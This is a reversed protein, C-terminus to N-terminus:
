PALYFLALRDGLADGANCKLVLSERFGVPELLLYRWALSGRRGSLARSFDRAEGPRGWFADLDAMSWGECEKGDVALSALGTPSNEPQEYVLGIWRGHGTQRVLNGPVSGAPQFIGRLRMRNKYDDRSKDTARDVSMSIAVKEIAKSGRNRAAVSLGSGYPMALLNAAGEKIATVLTDFDKGTGALAPFWFRAPAAIAPISEGDITVELWLDKNTLVARDAQLKVWNVIGTGELRALEVTTGPEITRADSNIREYVEAERLKGGTLGEHRYAIAALVGRPVGPRKISFSEVPVGAPFTVYELRYTAPLPDSAVIKLSKAYALCMLTPQEQHAAGPVNDFVHEAGCEIRPQEEGDFYFALRGAAFSRWMRVLAGPGTLEALVHEGGRPLSKTVVGSGLGDDRSLRESNMLRDLVILPGTEGHGAYWDDLGLGDPAEYVYPERFRIKGGHDQLGIWGKLHRHKLEPMRATNVQQVLEGNVWASIMRGDAKVVVQNWRESLDARDLPPVNGYIAMTSDKVEGPQDLIQLEMGDGSPWGDKATRIAIGSNGGKSIKYDFSFTFNAYEKDTRLYHLGQHSTPVIDGADVAWTGKQNNVFWGTLDKGNFLPNGRPEELRLEDITAEGAPVSLALGLRRNRDITVESLLTGDVIISLTGGARRIDASHRTGAAAAAVSAGPALPKDGDRVSGCDDGEKFTLQLGTGSPVDPLRVKWAGGPGTTWQFRIEFDGLTWGSLLESSLASGTLRGQSNVWHAPSVVGYEWGALSDPRLLKLGSPEGAALSAAGSLLTVILIWNRCATITM